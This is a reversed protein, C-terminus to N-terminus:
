KDSLKREWEKRIKRLEKAPEPNKSKWIGEVKRWILIREKPNLLPYLNRIKSEVHNSM